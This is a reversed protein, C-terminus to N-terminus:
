IVCFLWFPLVSFSVLYSIYLYMYLYIYLFVGSDKFGDNNIEEKVVALPEKLCLGMFDREM